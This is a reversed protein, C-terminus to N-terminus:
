SCSLVWYSEDTLGDTQDGAATSFDLDSVVVSIVTEATIGLFNCYDRMDFTAVRREPHAADGASPLNRVEGVTTRGTPQVPKFLRAFLQANPDQDDVRVTFEFVDGPLRKLLGFAPVAEGTAIVPPITGKPQRDLPVPVICGSTSCALMIM